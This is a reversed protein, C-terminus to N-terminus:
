LNSSIIDNGENFYTHKEPFDIVFTNNAVICSADAEVQSFDPNIAFELSTVNNLDILGSLGATKNFKGLKLANDEREGSLGGYVYPM